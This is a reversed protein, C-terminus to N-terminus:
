IEQRHIKSKVKLFLLFFFFSSFMSVQIVDRSQPGPSRIFQGGDRKEAIALNRARLAEEEISRQM